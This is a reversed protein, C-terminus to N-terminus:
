LGHRAILDLLTTADRSLHIPPGQNMSNGSRQTGSKTGDVPLLKGSNFKLSELFNHGISETFYVPDAYDLPHIAPVYVLAWLKNDFVPM